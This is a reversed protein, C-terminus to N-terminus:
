AVVRSAVEQVPIFTLFDGPSPRDAESQLDIGRALPVPEGAKVLNEIHLVMAQRLLLLTDEVSKGSAVCGPIDPSYAGYGTRSPEIIVTYAEMLQSKTLGAQRLISGAMKRPLDDNPSGAITVTGKKDSHHFQRHSGRTRVLFWGDEQIM